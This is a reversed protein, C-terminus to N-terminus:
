YRYTLAAIIVTDKALVSNNPDRHFRSPLRVSTKVTFSDHIRRDLSITLLQSKHDLDETLLTLAETDNIDNKLWRVGITLDNQFGSHSLSNRSDFAHETLLVLDSGSDAINYFSHELGLM